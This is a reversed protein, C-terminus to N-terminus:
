SRAHTVTKSHTAPPTPRTLREQRADLRGLLIPGFHVEYSLEAESFAVAEGSLTESIFILGGRWRVEGNSRVRRILAGPPYVPDELKTPYLRPSPRYLRAPTEFALAQHPRERNYSHRFADFRIQQSLLDAQPPQCAELKLTLHMREHRGNQEPHGPAIRDPWIGLKVWWVSLPSLGGPAVSAFPPGNDSRIARPLGHQRFLAEFAPRVHPYDGQRVAQCCLLNRSYADMVTLPNCRAGDQTRFWGKFDACWLDNAEQCAQFPATNPPVRRRRQRPRTLGARTLIAGRTSPAPWRAVIEAPEDVGPQLKLPGWLPRAHKARIVAAAVERSVARPHSHAVPPRDGLAERGGKVFRKHWKYATKRSIGYAEALETVTYRGSSWAQMLREREQMVDTVNWSM